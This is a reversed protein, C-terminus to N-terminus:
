NLGLGIVSSVLYFVVRVSGNGLRNTIYPQLLLNLVMIMNVQVSLIRELIKVGMM